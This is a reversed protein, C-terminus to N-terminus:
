AQVKGNPDLKARRARYYLMGEFDPWQSRLHLGAAELCRRSAANEPAVGAEFLEVFRLERWRTLANIM